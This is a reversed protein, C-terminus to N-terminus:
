WYYHSPFLFQRVRSLAYIGNNKNQLFHTAGISSFGIELQERNLEGFLRDAQQWASPMVLLEAIIGAAQLHVTAQRLENADTQTMGTAPLAADLRRQAPMGLVFVFLFVQLSEILRGRVTHPYFSFM